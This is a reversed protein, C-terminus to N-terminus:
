PLKLRLNKSFYFSLPAWPSGREKKASKCSYFVILVYDPHVVGVLDNHMNGREHFQVPFDGQTLTKCPFQGSLYDM